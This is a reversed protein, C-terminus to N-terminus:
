TVNIQGWDKGCEWACLYIHGQAQLLSGGFAEVKSKAFVSVKPQQQTGAMAGGNSSLHNPQKHM